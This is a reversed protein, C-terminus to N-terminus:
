GANIDRVIKVLEYIDDIDWNAGSNEVPDFANGYRAFITRIGLQSAGVVDREPWDGIMIAEDPKIKLTDLALQFPKPSPKHTGTDDHTIVLDFVHHLNLYYIRLWAERSPADSVVALRIGMKMLKILTRNVNPYTRLSAERNRRYAVVGAALYKNNVRGEVAKLYDDFVLQNEWGHDQYLKIIQDFAEQEDVDLGAEIMAHVAARVAQYKMTVFDLLTNDLDFIVAKIM